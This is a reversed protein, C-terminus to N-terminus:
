CAKHDRLRSTECQRRPQGVRSGCHCDVRDHRGFVRGETDGVPGYSGVAPQLCPLRRSWSPRGDRRRCCRSRSKSPLARIRKRHECLPEFVPGRLVRHALDQPASQAEHDFFGLAGASFGGVALKTVLSLISERFRLDVRRGSQGHWSALRNHRAYARCKAAMSPCVMDLSRRCSRCYLASSQYRL